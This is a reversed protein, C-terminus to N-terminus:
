FSDQQNEISVRDLLITQDSTPHYLGLKLYVGRFDNFANPGTREMVLEGDRWVETVGDNDYSWTVRFSWDIWRGTQVPGVWHWNNALYRSTSRLDREWGYTIGWTDNYIRLALPPGRGGEDAFFPDPSSHWQAVITNDGYDRPEPSNGLDEVYVSFNYWRTRGFPERRYKAQLSPYVKPVLECRLGEPARIRLSLSGSRVNDAVADMGCSEHADFQWVEHRGEFDEFGDDFTRPDCGTVVSFFAVVIAGAAM